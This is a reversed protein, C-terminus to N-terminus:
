PSRLPSPPAAGAPAMLPAPGSDHPTAAPSTNSPPPATQDPVSTVPNSVYTPQQAYTQQVPPAPKAAPRTVRGPKAAPRGAHTSKAVSPAARRPPFPESSRHVSPPKASAAAGTIARIATSGFGHTAELPLNRAAAGFAALAVVGVFAAWVLRGRQPLRVADAARDSRGPELERRIQDPTRVQQAAPEPALEYRSSREGGVRVLLCASVLESLDSAAQSGGVGTLRAYESRTLSAGLESALALLARRQAATLEVTGRHSVLVRGPSSVHHRRQVIVCLDGAYFGRIASRHTPRRAGLFALSNCTRPRARFQRGAGQQMSRRSGSGCGIDLTAICSGTSPRLPVASVAAHDATLM